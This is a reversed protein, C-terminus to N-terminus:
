KKTWIRTNLDLIDVMNIMHEIENYFLEIQERADNTRDMDLFKVEDFAIYMKNDVFSINIEEGKSHFTQIHMIHEVIEPTLIYLAEQIDTTYIIFSKNFDQNEITIKEYKESSSNLMSELKSFFNNTYIKTKGSFYKNFDFTVFTGEFIPIYLTRKKTKIKEEAVIYSIKMHTKDIMGEMLDSSNFRDIKGDYLETNIFEDIQHGSNVNYTLNNNILKLVSPIVVSKFKNQLSMIYSYKIVYIAISIGCGLEFLGKANDSDDVYKFVIFVTLIGVIIILLFSIINAKRKRRNVEAGLSGYKQYIEDINASM